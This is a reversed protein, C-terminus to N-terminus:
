IGGVTTAEDVQVIDSRLQRYLRDVTDVSQSVSFRRSINEQATLIAFDLDSWNTIVFNLAEALAEPKEPPFLMYEDDIIQELVGTRSSLLPVGAALTEVAAMGFSDIRSPNIVLDYKRVLERFHNTHGLFRFRVKPIRQLKLDNETPSPAEGTFDVQEPLWRGFRAQVSLAEVLDAWGKSSRQAGIVLLRKPASQTKERPPLFDAEEVGDNFLEIQKWKEWLQIREQLAAGVCVIVDYRDCQYKYYQERTIRSTRLFIASRASLTHALHVGLLGEWHDNAQVITPQISRHDLRKKVTRAFGTNFILRSGISRSRPFPEVLYQIGRRECEETLWGPSSCLIVPHWLRARAHSVLRVLCTQAGARHTANQVFLVSNM